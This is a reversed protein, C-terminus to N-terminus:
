PRPQQITSRYAYGIRIVFDKYRIIPNRIHKTKGTNIVEEGKNKLIPITVQNQNDIEVTTYWKRIANMQQKITAKHPYWETQQAKVVIQDIQANVQYYTNTHCSRAETTLTIQSLADQPIPSENPRATKTWANCYREECIQCIHTAAGGKAYMAHM